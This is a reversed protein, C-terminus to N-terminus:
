RKELIIDFLNTAIKEKSMKDLYIEKGEKSLIIVKNDESAFGTDSATIDNAVIYDLNKRQLKSMANDKLEQSEAAFGVLIQNKKKSGLEMLIDNDRIFEICLEGDGKKIKQTSYNKPKYDAVAASKIVIDAEDFINMVENKMEENTSVEVVNIDKPAIISTPGSILTVNAGRNRAEKAIAYGMKGTSRNTIFRVPDIPAITPGATVVVNKNLLDKNENLEMLVKDVIIEPSELKGKGSTGCALRGEAPDIFEYGLSKLKKINEQVIPNEYMNTNMAPAFIVKAKTAMITTSLMDDAIGNAVKGIINATAPAVLFVDAKEALSIHQIEWAKPEAFMDCTVMNQSLSQFSLPTVFKTASETMIVNVNIDKKVLLSVIELAKYVAIGGSVGLVLNKKM